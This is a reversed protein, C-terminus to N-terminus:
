CANSTARTGAASVSWDQRRSPLAASEGASREVQRSFRRVRAECLRGAQSQLRFLLSLADTVVRHISKQREHSAALARPRAVGGKWGACLTGASAATSSPGPGAKAARAAAAQALRSNLFYVIAQHVYVLPCQTLQLSRRVVDLLNVPVRKVQQRTLAQELAGCLYAMRLYACSYTERLGVLDEERM